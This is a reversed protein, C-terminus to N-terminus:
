YIGASLATMGLVLASASISTAKTLVVYVGEGFQTCQGFYIKTITKLKQDKDAGEQTDETETGESCNGTVYFTTEVFGNGCVSKRSGGADLTECQDTHNQYLENFQLASNIRTESTQGEIERSCTMDTFLSAKSFLEEGCKIDGDEQAFAVASLAAAM